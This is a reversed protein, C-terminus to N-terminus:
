TEDLLDCTQLRVSKRIRSSLKNEIGMGGEHHRGFIKKNNRDILKLNLLM